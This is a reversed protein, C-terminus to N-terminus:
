REASREVPTIELKKPRGGRLIVAEIPQGVVNERLVKTLDSVGRVPEGGLKVLVDGIALGARDAPTDREVSYVMVGRNQDVDTHEAVDSLLSVTNSVIGLYATKIKGDSMLRDVVQKVTNLPIAIGRQSVSAANLGLLKGSTDVLPGGSYGPTLPADTVIVDEMMRGWWGRITHRATTVAGSTVSTHDGFPNAAAFVLQGVRVGGNEDLSIPEFDNADIRLLSVDSYRDRGIISAKFSRGDVM